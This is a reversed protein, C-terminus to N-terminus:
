ALKKRATTGAKTTQVDYGAEILQQRILDAAAYDKRARAQDIERCAQEASTADGREVADGLGLGLV